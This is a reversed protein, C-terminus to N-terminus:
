LPHAPGEADQHNKLKRTPAAKIIVRHLDDPNHYGFQHTVQGKLQQKLIGLTDIVSETVHPHLTLSCGLLQWRTEELYYGEDM